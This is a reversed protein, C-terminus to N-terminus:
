RSARQCVTQAGVAAPQAAQCTQAAVLEGQDLGADAFWVFGGLQGLGNQIVQAAWEFDALM